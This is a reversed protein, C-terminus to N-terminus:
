RASGTLWFRRPTSGCSCGSRPSKAWAQRKHLNSCSRFAGSVAAMQQGVHAFVKVEADGMQARMAPEEGAFVILIPPGEFPLIARPQAWDQGFFYRYDDHNMIMIGVMGQERMLAQAKAIRDFRITM